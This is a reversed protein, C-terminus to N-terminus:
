LIKRIPYIYIYIDADKFKGEGLLADLTYINSDNM